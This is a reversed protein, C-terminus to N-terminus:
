KESNREIKGGSFVILMVFLGFFIFFLIISWNRIKKVNKDIDSKEKIEKWLRETELRRKQIDSLKSTDEVEEIIKILNLNEASFYGLKNALYLMAEPNNKLYEIYDGLETREKELLLKYQFLAEKEREVRYGEILGNQGLIIQYFIVGCFVVFVLLLIKKM